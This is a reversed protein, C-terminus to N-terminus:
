HEEHIGHRPFLVATVYGELAARERYGEQEIWRLWCNSRIFAKADKPNACEGSSVLYKKLRAGTMTGMLHHRYLRERLNKSRGVYYPMEASSSKATILYVGAAQPVASPVLTSYPIAVKAVLTTFREELFKRQEATASLM